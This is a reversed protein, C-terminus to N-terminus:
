GPCPDHLGEVVGPIVVEFRIAARRPVGFSQGEGDGTVIGGRHSDDGRDDVAEAVVGDGEVAEGRADGQLGAAGYEACSEGAGLEFRGDSVVPVCRVVFAGATGIGVVDGRLVDDGLVEAGIVEAGLFFGPPGVMGSSWATAAAETMRVPARTCSGAGPERCKPIPVKAKWVSPGSPVGTEPAWTM